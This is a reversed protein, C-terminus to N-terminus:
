RAGRGPHQDMGPAHGRGEDPEPRPVDLDGGRPDLAAGPRRDAQRLGPGIAGAAPGRAPAGGARQAIELAQVHARNALPYPVPGRGGRWSLRGADCDTVFITWDQWRLYDRSAARGHKSAKERAEQRRRAAVEQPVRVAILRCRLRDKVGLLVPIDVPRQGAEWRAKCSTWCSWNGARKRRLGNVGIQLRSVWSVGARMM